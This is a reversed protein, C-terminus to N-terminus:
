STNGTRRASASTRVTTDILVVSQTATRFSRGTSRPRPVVPGPNEDPVPNASGASVVFTGDSRGRRSEPYGAERLARIAERLMVRSVQLQDALDRERPLREGVQVLGLKNAQALRAVTIEFANGGRVPRRVPVVNSAAGSSM